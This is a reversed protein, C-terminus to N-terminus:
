SYPEIRSEWNKWYANSATINQVPYHYYLLYFVPNLVPIATLLDDKVPIFQRSILPKETEMVLEMWEYHALEIIFQPLEVLPKEVMLYDM